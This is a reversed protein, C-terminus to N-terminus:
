REKGEGPQLKGPHGEWFDVTYQEVPGLPRGGVAVAELGVRDDAFEVRLYHNWWAPPDQARNGSAIQILDGSRHFVLPIRTGVDGAVMVVRRTAALAELRPMLRAMFERADGAGPRSSANAREAVGAFSDDGLFWLVRHLCVVLNEVAPDAMAREVEELAFELQEGRIDGPAEETDLVLVLTTGLTRSFWTAGFREVARSRAAGPRGDHLDHNGPAIWVPIESPQRILEDFRDWRDTTGEWVVDGTLVLVDNGTTIDALEDVLAQMVPPDEAPGRRVHGAVAISVPETVIRMGSMLEDAQRERGLERLARGLMGALEPSVPKLLEIELEVAGIGAAQAIKVPGRWGRWSQTSMWVGPLPDAGVEAPQWEASPRVAVVPSPEPGFSDRKPIFRLQGVVVGLPAPDAVALRLGDIRDMGRFRTAGGGRLSAPHIRWTHPEGDVVVPFFIRDSPGIHPWADTFYLFVRTSWLAERYSVFAEVAAEPEGNELRYEVLRAVVPELNPNLALAHGGAEVAESRLGRAWLTASLNEWGRHDRDDVEVMERAAAEAGALDGLELRLRTSRELVEQRLRGVASRLQQPGLDDLLAELKALEAERSVGGATEAERVREVWGRRFDRVLSKELGWTRNILWWAFPLLNLVLLLGVWAVILRRENRHFWRRVGHRAPQAAEGM